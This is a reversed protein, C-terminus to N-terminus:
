RLFLGIMPLVPAIVLSVVSMLKILINMAPGSTDKFPDGVTDGVVAAKHNDSGKGGLNGAEIYKKANDWAGGANAMFLALFAGMATAGLLMGGLTEKGLLFGVAVPTLVAVLGPTVMKKLASTTAISVCTAPDPKVGEKGELLGPIERFQRRIEEVISFAAKGVSTMTLAACLMPVIGGIFIGIVVLPNKIDIIRLGAAQTYAVFLALATLAASGIAFGKGIAATTNGLADLSDTIKRTEPGLGSMESIGGANDAIPGYADVTMTAGVTALMGVASIGVGYIGAAKFGIFTAACIGLIPLYTSQMGVALGAIIVTAPGTASQSAIARIPPGSTYYEALLGIAIGCLLGSFIAWFAGWPMGISRTIIATLIVFIAAAVFTTYRLAGAPNGKQFIKISFVGVFSSLLGAMVILIPMTMYKLKIVLPSLGKLVPFQEVFEPTVSLTAGIAITAVVSGVYSEFIDAGMGAIDGVNDGVNDAIVGPNRPDDEPIGAEVKGVLDAGVDAAKTYVGGGVRAFLAISSAGMAFGNIYQATEPDGGYYWFWFGLGLLGLSAVALGMVSGSFYSVNLAKAQGEKNAAEATRSNGITASSMGFYGALMSCFAGTVFAISTRWSIGFGLLLFVIAIFFTLAFYEKRLFAMAGAHIMEELDRMVQTGNPHRKVYRYILYAIILGVIGLYPAYVTLGQM